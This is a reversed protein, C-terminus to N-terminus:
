LYNSSWLKENERHKLAVSKALFKSNAAIVMIPAGQCAQLTHDSVTASLCVTRGRLRFQSQIIRCYTIVCCNRKIKIYLVHMSLSINEKKQHSSFYIDVTVYAYRRFIIVNLTLNWYVFKRVNLVLGIVSELVLLSSFNLAYTLNLIITM